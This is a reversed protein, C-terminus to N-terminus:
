REHFLHLAQVPCYGALILEDKTCWTGAYLLVVTYNHIDSMAFMCSKSGPLEKITGKGLM